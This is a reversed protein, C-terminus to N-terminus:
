RGENHTKQKKASKIITSLNLLLNPIDKTWSTCRLSKSLQCSRVLKHKQSPQNCCENLLHQSNEASENRGEFQMRLQARM